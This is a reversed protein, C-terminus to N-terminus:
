PPIKITEEEKRGHTCTTPDKKRPFGLHHSDGVGVVGVVGQSRTNAINAGCTPPESPDIPGLRISILAEKKALELLNPVKM